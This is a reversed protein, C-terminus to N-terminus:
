IVKMAMTQGGSPTFNCNDVARCKDGKLGKGCMYNVRLLM